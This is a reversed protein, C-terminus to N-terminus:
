RLRVMTGVLRTMLSNMQIQLVQQLTLATQMHQVRLLVVTVGAMTMLNSLHEEQTNPQTALTHARM